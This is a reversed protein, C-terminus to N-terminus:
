HKGEAEKIELTSVPKWMTQKWSQAAQRTPASCWNLMAQQLRRGWRYGLLKRCNMYCPSQWCFHSNPHKLSLSVGNKKEKKKKGKRLSNVLYARVTDTTKFRCFGNWVVVREPLARQPSRPEAEIPVPLQGFPLQCLCSHSKRAKIM